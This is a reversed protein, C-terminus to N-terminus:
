SSAEARASLRFIKLAPEGARFRLEPVEQVLLGRSSELQAVVEATAAIGEPGALAPLRGLVEVARGAVRGAAQAIRGRHLGIRVDPTLGHGGALSERIALSATLAQGATEFRALYRDGVQRLLTGGSSLIRPVVAEDARGAQEMASEAGQERVLAPYAEIEALLLVSDQGHLEAIEVELQAADDIMSRRMELLAELNGRGVSKVEEVLQDTEADRRLRRFSKLARELYRQSADYRRLRKQVLGMLRYGRALGEAFELGASADACQAALSEAVQLDGRELALASGEALLLAEARALGYECAIALGRQVLPEARGPERLAAHMRALRTLSEVIGRVDGLGERIALARREHQLAEMPRGMSAHVGGVQSLARAVGPPDPLGEALRLADSAAQLAQPYERRNRHLEAIGGLTRQTEKRDSLGRLLVRARKYLALAERHSGRDAEIHALANLFRAVMRLADIRQALVLGRRYLRSARAYEGREQHCRALEELCAASALRDGMARTSDFVSWLAEMAKPYEGNVRFVMATELCVRAELPRDGAERALDHAATAHELAARHDGRVRALATKELLVRGRASRSSAPTAGPHPQSAARQAQELLQAAAVYEGRERSLGALGCLVDVLLASGEGGRMREMAQRYYEAARGYEGRGGALSGLLSLARVPLSTADPLTVAVGVARAYDRAAGRYDGRLSLIEGRDLLAQVWAAGPAADGGLSLAETLHELATDLSGRARELRGLLGLAGALCDRNAAGSALARAWRALDLAAEVDGLAAHCGALRLTVQAKESAVATSDLALRYLSAASEPRGAREEFAARVVLSRAGEPGGGASRARELLSLARESDGRAAHLLSLLELSNVLARSDGTEEGRQLADWASRLARQEEGLQWHVEAQCSLLLADGAKGPGGPDLLTRERERRLFTLAERPQGLSAMARARLCSVEVSPGLAATREVRELLEGHRGQRGLEMWLRELAARAPEAAAARCYHDHALGWEGRAERLRGLELEWGRRESVSMQSLVCGRVPEVTNLLDDRVAVLQKKLLSGLPPQPGACAEALQPLVGGAGAAEMLAIAELLRRERASLGELLIGLGTRGLESRMAAVPDEGAGCGRVVAGLLRIALPNGGTTEYRIAATPSRDGALADLLGRGKEEDLGDLTLEYIGITEFPGLQPAERAAAVLSTLRSASTSARALLAQAESGRADLDDAFLVAGAERAADLEAALRGAPLDRCELWRVERRSSLSRALAALLATKGVGPLGLVVLAPYADLRALLLERERDRGAFGPPPQPLRASYGARHSESKM